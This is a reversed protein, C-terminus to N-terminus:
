LFTEIKGSDRYSASGQNIEVTVTPDLMKATLRLETWVPAEGAAETCRM